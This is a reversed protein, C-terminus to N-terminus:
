HGRPASQDYVVPSCKEDHLRKIATVHSRITKPVHGAAALYEIYESLQSPSPQFVPLGHRLRFLAFLKTMSGYNDQTGRALAEQRRSDAAM